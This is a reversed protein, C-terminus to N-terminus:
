VLEAISQVIYRQQDETLEAYIPLALVEATAKESESFDGPQYGFHKFCGQLHLSLPYYVESGISRDALCQQLEDRRGGGVRVVFQHFIHKHGDAEHPLAM